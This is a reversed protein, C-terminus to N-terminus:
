VIGDFGPAPPVSLDTHPISAAGFSLARPFENLSHPGGRRPSFYFCSCTLVSDLLLPFCIIWGNNLDITHTYGM